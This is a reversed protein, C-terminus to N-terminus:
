IARRSRTKRRSGLSRSRAQTVARDYDVGAARVAEAWSGFQRRARSYLAGHTRHVRFLGERRLALRQIRELLASPTMEAPRGRRRATGPTSDQSSSDAGAVLMAGSPASKM